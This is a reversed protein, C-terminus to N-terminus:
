EWYIKVIDGDHLPDSFGCKKGNITTVIARGNGSHTDFNYVNWIDVFIYSEKGTLTIPTDNVTIGISTGANPLPDMRKTNPRTPGLDSAPDFAAGLGADGASETEAEEADATAGPNQNEEEAEEATNEVPAEEKADSVAGDEDSVKADDGYGSITWEVNFNEYVLTNMDAPMRNVLIEHDKSITVDMFEAIQSVTYYKRTEIRDGDRIEYTAPELVGNVEFFKPCRVTVANIIFSLTSTKFEDTDGLTLAAQEGETSPEIVIDANQKLRTNLAATEGNMTIRAGEGAGGVAMREEGDVTYRIEKGRRPFLEDTSLGAQLAADVIRLKGNDYLKMRDGNFHIMIFNNKQEYYNLCIGIPTVLLPDKEIDTQEFDIYQMVEEGRLAVREKAIGLKKSLALCFDHVKGGGGVVFTAAVAKDGNLEIIKASVEDTIKEMVPDTLAWVEKSPVTHEIGMIDSYTVTDSITSDIKVKEATDFDCLFAQVIVETLEDGAHPIMGYAIISGDRTICIDSTGAGVDVLAINLMRFSEPIALNIAAIPELTLNAVSLGAREVSTYLGDVVDEPLFTVIIVEEIRNAKHGELHTFLEGNLYYKMVSYGVCYFHYRPNDESIDRQAQDVGLLDLNNLDEGTVVTEEDFNMEVRTTVTRLVRGAAAICVDTLPFQMMQELDEKVVQVTDAVRQIDHIQGDLMARTTHPVSVEASVHFGKETKYGVTGVVNRTGIDLGFVYDHADKSEVARLGIVKERTKETKEEAIEIMTERGTNKRNKRSM